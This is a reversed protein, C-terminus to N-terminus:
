TRKLADSSYVNESRDEGTRQKRDSAEWQSFWFFFFFYLSLFTQNIADVSTPRYPCGASALNSLPDPLVDMERSFMFCGRFFPLFWLYLFSLSELYSIRDLANSSPRSSRQCTCTLFPDELFLFCFNLFWFSETYCPRLPPCYVLSLLIHKSSPPMWFFPPILVFTSPALSCSGLSQLQIGQKLDWSLLKCDTVRLM